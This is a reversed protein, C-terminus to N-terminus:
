QLTFSLKLDLTPMRLHMQQAPKLLKKLDVKQIDIDEKTQQFLVDNLKDGLAEYTEVQETAPLSVLFSLFSNVLKLNVEVNGPKLKGVMISVSEIIQKDNENDDMAEAAFSVMEKQDAKDFEYELFFAKM